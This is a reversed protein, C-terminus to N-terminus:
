ASKYEGNEILIESELRYALGAKYRFKINKIIQIINNLKDFQSSQLHMLGYNEYTILYKNNLQISSELMIQSEEYNKLIMNCIGYQRYDYCSHNNLKLSYNLINNIENIDDYHQYILELYDNLINKDKYNSLIIAKNFMEKLKNYLENEM